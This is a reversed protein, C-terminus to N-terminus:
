FSTAITCTGNINVGQNSGICTSDLIFENNYVTFSRSRCKVLYHLLLILTLHGFSYDNVDPKKL